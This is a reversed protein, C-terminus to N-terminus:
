QYLKTSPWQECDGPFENRFSYLQLGINIQGSVCYSIFIDILGLCLIKLIGKPLGTALM